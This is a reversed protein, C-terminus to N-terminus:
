EWIILEWTFLGFEGPLTSSGGVLKWGNKQADIHVERKKKYHPCDDTEHKTHTEFARGSDPLLGARHISPLM